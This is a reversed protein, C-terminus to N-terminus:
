KMSVVTIMHIIIYIAQYLAVLRCTILPIKAQRAAPSEYNRIDSKSKGAFFFKKNRLEDDEQIVVM